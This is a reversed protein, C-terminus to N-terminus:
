CSAFRNEFEEIYVAGRLIVPYAVLPKAPLPWRKDHRELSGMLRNVPDKAM